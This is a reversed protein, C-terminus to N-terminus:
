KCENSSNNIIVGAFVYNLNRYGCLCNLISHSDFQKVGHLLYSLMQDVRASQEDSTATKATPGIWNVSQFHSLHISISGSFSSRPLPHYTIPLMVSPAYELKPQPCPLLTCKMCILSLVEGQDSQENCANLPKWKWDTLYDCERISVRTGNNSKKSCEIIFLSQRM